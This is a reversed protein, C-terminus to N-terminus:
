IAEKLDSIMGERPKGTRKKGVIRGELVDRLLGEGRLVHGIWNKKRKTITEILCRKEKVITLVEENSIRDVWSIKELGRWLWMELAQLRNIEDQLLTWTECGYLVVPWVVVKVMRKKLGMSLRKTLLEKRKNFADKEMAIRIQVDNHSRGDETIVSGLCKFSKVQERRQGDITINVVGGGNWSVVKTKTKQVNIKMGFNKATDNLKNMQRQLGSGTSAVMGQDDAFRVDSILQGEVKVGENMDELAEIMMVEAYISFLLPPINREHLQEKYIYSCIIIITSICVM